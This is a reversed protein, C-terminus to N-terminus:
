YGGALGAPVRASLLRGADALILECLAGTKAESAHPVIRRVPVQEVIRGLVEFEAARQDKNLLWNMYTNRVLELLAERPHMEEIRPANDQDTRASLLYIVGLPAREPAFSARAGDLALYRKEWSPTLRPLAETEGFLMEVADPWLCIRPYGPQVYFEQRERALAAIDECLVPFGRLALAAATTSKGAETAGCLVVARGALSAASAHLATVGRRRLVYGCVPGLLYTAIDEITLPSPASAWVRTVASDMVFRTGDPYALELFEGHGFSTLALTPDENGTRVSRGPREERRALRAAKLVWGPSAGFELAIRCAEGSAEDSPLGPVPTDSAFALGYARYLHTV